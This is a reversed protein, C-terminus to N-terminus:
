TSQIGAKGSIGPGDGGAMIGARPVRGLLVIANGLLLQRETDISIGAERVLARLDTGVFGPYYRSEYARIFRFSFGRLISGEPMAYDVIIVTGAPRCVRVMEALARERVPLPMDHLAFSICTLDFRGDGFPLRTADALEFRANPFRNNKVAVKLMDESLDVGTVDFGRRAFAFAQKGTGTAVDLVARGAADGALEAVKERVGSAFLEMLNYFPAWRAFFRRSYEHYDDDGPMPM